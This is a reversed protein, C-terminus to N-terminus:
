RSCDISHTDTESPPDQKTKTCNRVVDMGWERVIRGEPIAFWREIAYQDRLGEVMAELRESECVACFLGLEPTSTQQKQLEVTINRNIFDDAADFTAFCFIDTVGSVHVAFLTRGVSITRLSLRRRAPHAQMFDTAAQQVSFGEVIHDRVGGAIVFTQQLFNM